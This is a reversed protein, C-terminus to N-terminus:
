RHFSLTRHGSCSTNTVNSVSFDLGTAHHSDMARLNTMKSAMKVVTTDDSGDMFTTGGVHATGAHSWSGSTHGPWVRQAGVGSGIKSM